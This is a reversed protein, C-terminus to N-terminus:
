ISPPKVPFMTLVSLTGIANDAAAAAQSRNLGARKFRKTFISKRQQVWHAKFGTDPIEIIVKSRNPDNSLRDGPRGPQLYLAGSELILNILAARKYVDFILVITTELPRVIELRLSLTQRDDGFGWTVVVDGPSEYTEHIRSYEEIDPRDTTDIILLPIFIGSNVTPIRIAADGVIQVPTSEAANRFNVVKRKWNSPKKM